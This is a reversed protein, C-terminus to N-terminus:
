LLAPAQKYVEKLSINKGKELEYAKQFAKAQDHSLETAQKDVIYDIIRDSKAKESAFKKEMDNAAAAYMSQFELKSLMTDYMTMGNKKMHMAKDKYEARYRNYLRSLEEGEYINGERKSLKAM